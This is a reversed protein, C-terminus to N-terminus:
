QRKEIREAIAEAAMTWSCEKSREERAIAACTEREERVRREIEAEWAETENTALVRRLRDTAERAKTWDVHVGTFFDDLTKLPGEIGPISLRDLKEPRSLMNKLWTLM